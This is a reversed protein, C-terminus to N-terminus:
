QHRFIAVKMEKTPQGDKLKFWDGELNDLDVMDDTFTFSFRESEDDPSLDLFMVAGKESYITGSLAIRNDKPQSKYRYYGTVNDEWGGKNEIQLIMEIDYSNESDYIRGDYQVTTQEPATRGMGPSWSGRSLFVPYSVMGNGEGESDQGLNDNWTGKLESTQDISKKLALEFYPTFWSDVKEDLTLTEGIINGELLIKDQEGFFQYFGKVSNGEVGPGDVWLTMDIGTGRRRTWIDGSYDWERVIPFVIDPQKLFEKGAKRTGNIMTAVDFFGSEGYDVYKVIFSENGSIRVGSLSYIDAGSDDHGFGVNPDQDASSDALIGEIGEVAKKGVLKTLRAKLEPSSLSEVRTGVNNFFWEHLAKADDSCMKNSPKNKLLMFAALGLVLIGALAIIIWKRGNASTPPTPRNPLVESSSDKKDLIETQKVVEEEKQVVEETKVPEPDPKLREHCVPCIVSDEPIIECCVPCRFEYKPEIWTGCYKCKKAVALIEKGCNPCIKM